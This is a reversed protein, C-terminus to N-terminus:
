DQGVGVPFGLATARSNSLEGVPARYLWVSDLRHYSYYNYVSLVLILYFIKYPKQGLLHLSLHCPPNGTCNIAETRRAASILKEVFLTIRHETPITILNKIKKTVARSNTVAADAATNVHSLTVVSDCSIAAPAVPHVCWSLSNLLKAYVPSCTPETWTTCSNVALGVPVVSM